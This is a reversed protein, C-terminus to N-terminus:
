RIITLSGARKEYTGDIIEFVAAYTYVDSPVQRGKYNGNWGFYSDLSGDHSDTFLLEGWRNYIQLETLAVVSKNTRINFFSDYTDSDPTIVNPIFINVVLEVNIRIRREVECGNANTAVFIIETSETPTYNLLNRNISMIERDADLWMFSVFNDDIFIPELDESDGRNITYSPEVEVEGLTSDFEVNFTVISDCGLSNEFRRTYSGPEVIEEDFFEVVDGPCIEFDFSEQSLPKVQLDVVITSDCGLSSMLVDEYRGSETAAITGNLYTDGECIEETFANPEDFNVGLEVTIISDCGAANPIVTMYSGEETASIDNFTFVDGFCIQENVNGFSHEMVTLNITVMSDCGSGTIIETIYEGSETALIDNYEFTAGRCISENRSAEIISNISLQLTVISDCNNQDKLTVSYSGEEDYEEGHFTVFDGPCIADDIITPVVANALLEVNIISDCGLHNTTMATYSGPVDAVLDFLMYTDGSCLIAEEQGFTTNNVVVTLEYFEDCGGNGSVVVDYVGAEDFKQDGLEVPVGECTTRTEQIVMPDAISLELIHMIDCDDPIRELDTFTGEADYTTGRWDFSTGQCIVETARVEEPPTVTLEVIILSDCPGTTSVTQYVGSETESIDRFTFTKGQCITEEMRFEDPPAVELNVTVEVSDCNNTSKLITSYTGADSASITGFEFLGGQCIIEDREESLPETVTLNVIFTTDCGNASMVTTSYEGATTESIDNFTYTEGSCIEADVQVPNLDEFTLNVTRVLSDCGTATRITDMYRGPQDAMINGLEFTSGTCLTENLIESSPNDIFIEFLVTSDCNNEVTKTTFKQKGQRFFAFGNLFLTDGNCLFIEGLDTEYTDRIVEYPESAVCGTSTNVVATYIGEGTPAFRTVSIPSLNEGDIAVEDKYWQISTAGPIDFFLNLTRCPNGVINTLPQVNECDVQAAVAMSLVMLGITWLSKLNVNLMKRLKM